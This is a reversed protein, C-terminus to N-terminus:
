QSTRPSLACSISSLLDSTCRGCGFFGRMMARCVGSNRRWRLELMDRRIAAEEGMAVVRSQLKALGASNSVFGVM